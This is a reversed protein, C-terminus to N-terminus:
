KVKQVKVCEAKITSAFYPKPLKEKLMVCEEETAINDIVSPGGGGATASGIYMILIWATYTM